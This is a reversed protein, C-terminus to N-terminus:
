PMRWSQPLVQPQPPELCTAPRARHCSGADAKRVAAASPAVRSHGEATRGPAAKWGANRQVSVGAPRENSILIYKSSRGTLSLGRRSQDLSRPYRSPRRGYEAVGADEFVDDHVLSHDVGAVAGQKDL